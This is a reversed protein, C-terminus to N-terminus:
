EQTETEAKPEKKAKTTKPKPEKKEKPEKKAKPEKEAKPEKKAKTAKPKAEAETEGQTAKSLEILLKNAKQRKVDSALSDRIDKGAISLYQDVGMNFQTAIPLVEQEIEEDSSDFSEIVAIKDLIIGARVSTQATQKYEERIVDMTIGTMALYTEMTQGQQRINNDLNQVMLDIEREIMSEPVDISVKDVLKLLIENSIQTKRDAEKRDGLKSKIDEVYEVYTDFESVDQAFDDDLEPADKTFVEKIEVKFLAPQGALNEAPYEKPFTVNVDVKDGQNKGILQEEFGEIFMGSGIPLKYDFGKGGEFPVGDVFGEFDITAVDDLVIAGTEKPVLRTNLDRQRNVVEDIEEQEVTVLEPEVYEIGTYDKRDLEIEPKLWVTATLSAGAEKSIDEIDFEPESVVTLELEEIAKKYTEPLVHNVADMWFYGEGYLKEVIQRPAKGKRFGQINIRSKQRNFVTNTAEELTTADIHMTIKVQKNELKEYTSSM